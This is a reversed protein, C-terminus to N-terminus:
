CNTIIIIIIIIVTIYFSALLGLRLDLGAVHLYKQILVYHRYHWCCM